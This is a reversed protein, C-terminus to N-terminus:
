SRKRDIWGRVPDLITLAMGLFACTGVAMGVLMSIAHSRAFWALGTLGGILVTAFTITLRGVSGDNPGAPALYILVAPVVTVALSTWCVTSNSM